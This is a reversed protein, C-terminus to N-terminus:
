EPKASICTVSMYWGLEACRRNLELDAECVNNYRSLEFSCADGFQLYRGASKM